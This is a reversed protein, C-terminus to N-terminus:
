RYFFCKSIVVILYKYFVIKISSIKRHIHRSLRNRTLYIYEVHHVKSISDIPSQLGEDGVSLLSGKPLYM